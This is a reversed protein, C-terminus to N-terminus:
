QRVTVTVTACNNSPNPDADNSNQDHVCVTDTTPGAFGPMAMLELVTNVARGVKATYACGNPGAVGKAGCKEGTSELGSGVTQTLSWTTSAPGGNLSRVRVEVPDGPKVHSISRIRSISLDVLPATFAIPATADQQGAIDGSHIECSNPVACDVAGSNTTNIDRHVTYPSTYDDTSVSIITTTSPDCTAVSPTGLTCEEIGAYFPVAFTFGSATVTVVQGDTLGTNPTVTIMPGAAGAPPVAIATCALAILAGVLIVQTLTRRKM